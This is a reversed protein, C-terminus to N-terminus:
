SKFYVIIGMIIMFAWVIIAVFASGILSLSLIGVIFHVVNSTTTWGIATCVESGIFAGFIFTCIIVAILVIAAFTCGLYAARSRAQSKLRMKNITSNM